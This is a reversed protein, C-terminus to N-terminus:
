GDGSCGGAHAFEQAAPGEMVLLCIEGILEEVTRINHVTGHRIRDFTVLFGRGFHFPDKRPQIKLGGVEGVISGDRLRQDLGAPQRGFLVERPLEIKRKIAGDPSQGGIAVPKRAVRLNGGDLPWFRHIGLLADIEIM